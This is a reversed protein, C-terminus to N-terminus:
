VRPEHPLFKISPIEVVELHERDDLNCVLFILFEVGSRLAEYQKDTLGIFGLRAYPGRSSKVEAYQGDVVLDFTKNNSRTVPRGERTLFEVLAQEGANGTIYPGSM